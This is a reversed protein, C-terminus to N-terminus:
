CLKPSGEVLTYWVHTAQATLTVHYGTFNVYQATVRFQM